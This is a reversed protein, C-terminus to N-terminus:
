AAMGNDDGFFWSIPKGTVESLQAISDLRPLRRGQEWNQVARDSVGLARALKGQSM